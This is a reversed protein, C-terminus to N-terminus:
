GRIPNGFIDKQTNDTAGFGIPATGYSGSSNVQPNAGQLGTFTPISQISQLNALLGQVDKANNAAWSELVARKNAQEAQVAQMAQIAQNYINESLRQIDQGKALGAQGITGKIQNQADTFWQGINALQTNKDFELQKLGQNYTDSVQNLRQTAQQQINARERTGMKAIAYSYQNAASSDGAGRAGLYTNGSQFLNQINSGLDKLSKNQQDQTSQIQQDRQQTLQTNGLDYASNAQNILNDKQGSLGNLSDNLTQIYQDYGQGGQPATPTSNANFTTQSTKPLASVGSSQNSSPTSGTGSPWNLPANTGFSFNSLDATNAGLVQPSAAQSQSQNNFTFYPQNQTNSGSFLESVGLEPLHLFNGATAINSGLNDFLGM